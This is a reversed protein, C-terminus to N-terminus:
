PENCGQGSRSPEHSGGVKAEQVKIVLFEETHDWWKCNQIIHRFAVIVWWCKWCTMQVPSIQWSEVCPCSSFDSINLLLSTPACPWKPTTEIQWTSPINSVNAIAGLVDTLCVCVLRLSPSTHTPRCFFTWCGTGHWLPSCPESVCSVGIASDDAEWGAAVLCKQTSGFMGHPSHSCFNGSGEGSHHFYDIGQSCQHNCLRLLNTM